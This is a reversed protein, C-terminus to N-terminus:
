EYVQKSSSPPPAPEVYGASGPGKHHPPKQSLNWHAFIWLLAFLISLSVIVIWETKSKRRSM